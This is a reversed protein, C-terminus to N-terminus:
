DERYPQRTEYLRLRAQLQRLLDQQPATSALSIAKRLTAVAEEFRQM